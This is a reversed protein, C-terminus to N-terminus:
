SKSLAAELSDQNIPALFATNARVACVALTGRERHRVDQLIDMPKVQVRLYPKSDRLLPNPMRFDDPALAVVAGTRLAIRARGRDDRCLLGQPDRDVVLWYKQIYTGRPGSVQVSRFDGQSDPRIVEAIQAQAIGTLM